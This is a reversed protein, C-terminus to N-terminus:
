RLAYDDRPVYEDRPSPPVLPTRRSWVLLAVLTPGIVPVLCLLLAAVLQVATIRGRLHVMVMVVACALGLVVVISVLLAPTSPAANSLAFTM